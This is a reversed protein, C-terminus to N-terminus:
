NGGILGSDTLAARLEASQAPTLPTLPQRVPGGALGVAELAAKVGAVGLTNVATRAAPMLREQIGRAGESDGAAARDRIELVPAPAFLSVALIGGRVGSALAAAFGTGSGTLVAFEPSQSQLYARLLQEDGSSDKMGVINEHRALEAVLEPALAFHMYKPINYLLIAIPSEDAVRLYHARLAPNTMAAGYYHPAVVLVADAGREAASRARAVTLRTSEAGVGAILWHDDPVERRSWETLLDRESDELLAAEGTSGCVVIGSLGAAVHARVNARFPERALSEGASEFTTIVPGLVGGLGQKV